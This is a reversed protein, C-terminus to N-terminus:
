LLSWCLETWGPYPLCDRVKKAAALAEVRGKGLEFRSTSVLSGPDKQALALDFYKSSKSQANSFPM